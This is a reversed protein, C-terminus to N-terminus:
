KADKSLLRRERLRKEWEDPVGEVWVEGQLRKLINVLSNSKKRSVKSINEEKMLRLIEEKFFEYERRIIINKLGPTWKHGGRELEGRWQNYYLGGGLLAEIATDLAASTTKRSKTPPRNRAIVKSM